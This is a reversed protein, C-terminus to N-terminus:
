PIMTKFEVDCDMINQKGYITITIIFIIDTYSNNCVKDSIVFYLREIM